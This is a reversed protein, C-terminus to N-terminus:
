KKTKDGVWEAGDKIGEGTAKAGKKITKGVTKTDKKVEQKVTQAGITVTVFLVASLSLLRKKM